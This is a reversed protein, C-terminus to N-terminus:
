SRKELSIIHVAIMGPANHETQCVDLDMLAVETKSSILANSLSRVFTSKGVSSAGCVLLSRSSGHSLSSSITLM